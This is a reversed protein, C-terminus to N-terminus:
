TKPTPGGTPATLGAVQGRREIDATLERRRRAEAALRAFAEGFQALFVGTEVLELDDGVDADLEQLLLMFSLMLKNRASRAAFLPSGMLVAALIAHPDSGTAEAFQHIRELSIRGGGSEFHEYSRLPMGMRAAVDAARLGQRRRVARLAQSLSRSWSQPDLAGSM